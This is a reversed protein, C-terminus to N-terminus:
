VAGGRREEGRREVPAVRQSDHRTPRRLPIARPNHSRKVGRMIRPTFDRCRAYYLARPTLSALLRLPPPNQRPRTLDRISSSSSSASVLLLTKSFPPSPLPLLPMCIRVCPTNLRVGRLYFGGSLRVCKTCSNFCLFAAQWGTLPPQPLPTGSPSPCLSNSFRAFVPPQLPNLLRAFSSTAHQSTPQSRAPRPPPPDAPRGTPYTIGDKTYNSVYFALLNEGEGKARRCGRATKEITKGRGREIEGRGQREGTDGGRERKKRTRERQGDEEKKKGGGEGESPRHRNESERTKKEEAFYFIKLEM